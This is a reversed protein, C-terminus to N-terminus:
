ALAPRPGGSRPATGWLVGPGLERDGLVAMQLLGDLGLWVWFCRRTTSNGGYGITMFGGRRGQHSVVPRPWANPQRAESVV